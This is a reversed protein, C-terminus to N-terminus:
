AFDTVEIYQVWIAVNAGTSGEAKYTVRWRVVGSLDLRYPFNEANSWAFDSSDKGTVLGDVLDLSVGAAIKDLQHWESDAETGADQVYIYDDAAFGTTSAVALVKETAPETATLAETVPTGNFVPFQAETVWNENTTGLNTQVYFSGPNANSAAEIFAHHMHIKAWMAGSVPTLSSGYVSNPNTIAQHTIADRLGASAQTFDAM